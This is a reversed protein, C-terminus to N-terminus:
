WFSDLNHEVEKEEKEEDIVTEVRINTSNVAKSNQLKQNVEKKEDINNKDKM